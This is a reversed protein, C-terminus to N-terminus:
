IVEQTFAVTHVRGAHKFQLFLRYRGVTPFTSDFETTGEMPHVHLFALDGDRLAVLHGNAGLYPQVQVPKGHKLVTFRISTERGARAQTEALRVSYGDRTAAQTAPEPLPVFDAAGSVRLDSALTTAKGDHSFDAFFRYSGAQDLRLKTTWEGDGTQRPHLHQFGTLDRRVVILHMRKTHTVDFDRVTAGRRDVIRFRLTDTRGRTFDPNAVVLRLGNEAVALGRVPDAPMAGHGTDMKTMATEETSRPPAPDLAKGVAFGGALLVVLAAAFGALKATM